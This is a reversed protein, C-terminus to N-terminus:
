TDLLDDEHMEQLIDSCPETYRIMKQEVSRAVCTVKGLVDIQKARMFELGDINGGAPDNIDISLAVFRPCSQALSKIVHDAAVTTEAKAMYYARDVKVDCWTEGSEDMEEDQPQVIHALADPYCFLKLLRLKQLNRLCNQLLIDAVINPIV